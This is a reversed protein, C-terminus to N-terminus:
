GYRIRTFPASAEASDAAIGISTNAVRLPTVEIPSPASVTDTTAKKALSTVDATSTVSAAPDAEVATAM